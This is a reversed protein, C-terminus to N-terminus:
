QHKMEDELKVLEESLKPLSFQKAKKWAAEHQNSLLNPEALYRLLVLALANADLAPVIFGDAGNTVVQGCNPTTIVPLGHAMAEIQTIAFGDSITPLVFIDCREYWAAVEDRGARGHFVLNPPASKIAADSIDIPGVVEFRMPENQLLKAAEILYQIGKRLIVQGLFLVRLPRKISIRKEEAELKWSRVKPGQNWNEVEYALPIVVLKEPPVGQQMLADASWRSNVVIRHALQWEAEHRQFYLEPVKIPNRAWGLWRQEEKDVMEVEVRGPDMQGLICIAGQERAWRFLELATTDYSFVLKGRMDTGHRVLYDRVRESFWRGDRIFGHYAGNKDTNIRQVFQHMVTQTNWSVIRPKEKRAEGKREGNAMRWRNDALGPHFRAAMPRLPGFALQRLIPGAWVETFLAELRGSQHLVRPVAYHERAGNQVCLWNM